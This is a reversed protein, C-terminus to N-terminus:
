KRGISFQSLLARALQDAEQKWLEVDPHATLSESLEEESVSVPSSSLRDIRNSIAVLAGKYSSAELSAIFSREEETLGAVPHSPSPQNGLATRALEMSRLAAQFNAFVHKAEEISRYRCEALMLDDRTKAIDFSERVCELAYDLADMPNIAETGAPACDQKAVPDRSARSKCGSTHDMGQWDDPCTCIAESPGPKIGATQRVVANEAEGTAQPPHGEVGGDSSQKEVSALSRITSALREEINPMLENELWEALRSGSSFGHPTTAYYAATESIETRVEILLAEVTAPDLIPKHSM